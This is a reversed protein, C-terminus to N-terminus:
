SQPSIMYIGKRAEWSCSSRREEGGVEDELVAIQDTKRRRCNQAAIQPPFKINKLVELYRIINIIVMEGFFFYEGKHAKGVSGGGIESGFDGWFINTGLLNVKNKGRRRIDRCFAAQEESLGELSLLETFKGRSCSIIYDVSRFM